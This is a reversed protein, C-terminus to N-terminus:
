DIILEMQILKPKMKMKNYFAKADENGEWVALAIAHCHLRKAEVKAFEFLSEGVHNRRAKEDVCLDEIFLTDFQKNHAPQSKVSYILHGIVNNNEDVAVKINQTGNELISELQEATYKTTGHIFIDPRIKAHLELIQSLLDLIKPIDQKKAPRINM